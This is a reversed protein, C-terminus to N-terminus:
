VEGEMMMLLVRLSLYLSFLSSVSLYFPVCFLSLTTAHCLYALLLAAASRLTNWTGPLRGIELTSRHMRRWPPHDLKKFSLSSSRIMLFPLWIKMQTPFPFNHQSHIDPDMWM